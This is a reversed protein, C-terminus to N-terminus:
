TSSPSPPMLSETELQLPRDAVFDAFQECVYEVAHIQAESFPARGFGRALEIAGLYRGRQHVPSCVSHEVELGLARWSSPQAPGSVRVTAQRRLAEELHPWADSSRRGLVQASEPGIARVVVFERADIDFVYILAGDCPIFRALTEKIYEAGEAISQMYLLEHMREFLEGVLEESALVRDSHTTSQPEPEVEAVPYEGSRSPAQWSMGSDSRPADAGATPAPAILSTRGSGHLETAEGERGGEGDAEPFLAPVALADDEGATSSTRRVGRVWIESEGEWDKWSLTAVPPSLPEDEFEHDFLALQIFKPDDRGELTARVAALEAQLHETLEADSLLNDVLYVRERYVLASADAPEETREYLLRPPDILTLSLPAM